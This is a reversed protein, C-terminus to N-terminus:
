VMEGHQLLRRLRSAGEDIKEQEIRCSSVVAKALAPHLRCQGEKTSVFDGYTFRTHRLFTLVLNDVEPRYLEILDYVLADQREKDSHLIGCSSDFGLAALSRRVQNSLVGYSYNLIANCPDVAYRPSQSIPSGRERIQQWHPPVRKADAKVWKLPQDIWAQFYVEALRGEFGILGVIDHAWPPLEPQDISALSQRIHEIAQEARPLYSHRRLTSAQGQLKQKIFWRAITARGMSGLQYQCRRLEITARTQPTLVGMSLGDRNLLSVCIGQDHCWRLADISIM